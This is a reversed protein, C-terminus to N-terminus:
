PTFPSPNDGRDNTVVLIIAGAVAGGLVILGFARASDNSIGGLVGVGEDSGSGVMGGKDDDDDDDDTQGIITSLRASDTRAVKGDPTTISGKVGPGTTLTAYGSTMTVDITSGSFNLTLTTEPAMRLLGLKGIQVSAGVGAPTLLQSGPLITTGPKTSNGNVNIPNNGSTTLKGTRAPAVAPSAEALSKGVLSAQVYIQSISFILVLAIASAAKQRKSTM